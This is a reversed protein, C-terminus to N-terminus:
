DITVVSIEPQALSLNARDHDCMVAIRSSVIMRCLKGDCLRPSAAYDLVVRGDVTESFGRDGVLEALVRQRELRSTQVLQPLDEVLAGLFAGDVGTIFITSRLHTISPKDVGCVATSCITSSTADLSVLVSM